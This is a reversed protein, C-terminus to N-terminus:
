DEYAMEGKKLYQRSWMQVEGIGFGFLSLLTSVLEGSIPVPIMKFIGFSVAGFLIALYASQPNQRGFIAGLLPVFLCCVSLEYSQIMLDVVNNFFFSVAIGSLAIGATLIQQGRVGREKFLPIDFDLAINSSIANLLSDATSIIAALIACGVLATIWPSSSIKVVEMFVSSGIPVEIQMFKALIGFFVPILCIVFTAVGATFASKSVLSPSSAAFCRQGMDQEIVMFLLPMALWACIKASPFEFFASHNSNIAEITKSDLNWFVYIFCIVFAAVFFTAQVVDTAIVAKLGGMATYFIVMSWFLIFLVSGNVGLSTMFKSSAVVQAVFILFLSIISFLSTIKKLNISNYAKGFVQSITSVNFLALKRGVGLGLLIFGLSQGLPYLLVSWGFHFAEEASGLILGGGVQTALFTMCLPFYGIQRGALYYENKDKIEKASMAVFICVAQLGFFLLFFVPINM